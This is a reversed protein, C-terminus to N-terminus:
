VADEYYETITRIDSVFDGYGHATLLLKVKETLADAFSEDFMDWAISMEQSSMSSCGSTYWVDDTLPFSRLISFLEDMEDDTLEKTFKIITSQYYAEVDDEDCPDGEFRTFVNVMGALIHACVRHTGDVVTPVDDVDDITALGLTVAERLSGQEKLVAVLYEVTQREIPDDLMFQVTADWSHESPYIPKYNAVLESLLM